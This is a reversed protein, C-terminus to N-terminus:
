GEKPGGIVESYPAPYWGCGESDHVHADGRLVMSRRWRGLLQPIGPATEVVYVGALYGDSGDKKLHCKHALMWKDQVGAVGDDAARFLVPGGGCKPCLLSGNLEGQMKDSLWGVPSYGALLADYGRSVRFNYEAVADRLIVGSSVARYAYGGECKWLMCGCWREDLLRKRSDGPACFVRYFLVGDADSGVVKLGALMGRKDPMVVAGFLGEDSGAVVNPTDIM